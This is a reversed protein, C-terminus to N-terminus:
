ESLYEQARGGVSFQTLTDISAPSRLVEHVPTSSRRSGDVSAPTAACNPNSRTMATAPAHNARRLLSARRSTM